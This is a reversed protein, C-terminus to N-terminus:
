SGLVGWATLVALPGLNAQLAADLEAPPDPIPDLATMADAALRYGSAAEALVCRASPEGGSQKAIARAARVLDAFTADPGLARFADPSESGAVPASTSAAPTSRAPPVTGSQSACALVLWPILALTRQM